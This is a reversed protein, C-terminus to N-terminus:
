RIQLAVMAATAVIAGGFTLFSIVGALMMAGPSLSPRVTSQPESLSQLSIRHSDSSSIM